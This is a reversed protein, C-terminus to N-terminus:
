AKFQLALRAVSMTMSPSMINISQCNPRIHLSGVSKTPQKISLGLNTYSIRDRAAISNINNNSSDRIVASKIYYKKKSGLDISEYM